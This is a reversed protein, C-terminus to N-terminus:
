VGIIRVSKSLCDPTQDVGSLVKLAVGFGIRTRQGDSRCNAFGICHSPPKRM